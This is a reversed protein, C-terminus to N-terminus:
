LFRFQFLSQCCNIRRRHIKILHLASKVFTRCFQKSTNKIEEKVINDCFPIKEMMFQLFPYKHHNEVHYCLINIYCVDNDNVIDNFNLNKNAKEELLYKYDM